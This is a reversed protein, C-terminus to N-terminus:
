SVYELLHTLCQIFLYKTYVNCILLYKNKLKFILLYM